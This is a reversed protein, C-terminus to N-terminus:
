MFHITTEMPLLDEFEFPHRVVLIAPVVLRLVRQGVQLQAVLNASPTANLDSAKVVSVAGIIDKKQQSTYGTVVVETLQNNSAELQVNIETRNGISVEKTNYGVFSFLLVSNVDTVSIRYTGQADTTTGRATGKVVVTVGPLADGKDDTVTGSIAVDALSETQSDPEYQIRVEDAQTTLPSLVIQNKIVKYKIQLPHLLRDLVQGLSENVVTFTMRQSAIVLKPRYTFKVDAQKEISALVSIIDQNTIRINIKRDLLEQATVERALSVGAFLIAISIHLLSLKMLHILKKKIRLTKKM